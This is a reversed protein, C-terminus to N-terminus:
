TLERLRTLRLAAELLLLLLALALFPQQADRHLAAVDRRTTRDLESLITEFTQELAGRDTALFARGGTERAISELLAPNAPLRQSSRGLGALPDAGAGRPPAHQGMLITFVKVKMDRAYRAAERPALNGANNDGDTLLIVVRSKADSPRLRALALGLGNGIATAAGDILGLQVGGLLNILVSYDLTLPCYTYAERGFVVLGLRDSRRRRIFGDLVRKAAELRNPVLDDAEMSNSLDLAVVIDIGEVEIAGGRERTQPRALAVILLALLVLRLVGPLPLLRAMPGPRLRGLVRTSSVRLHAGRRPLLVFLLWYALPLAVLLLLLAWPRGFSFQGASSLAWGLLAVVAALVTLLLGWPGPARRATVAPAAEPLDQGKTSRSM